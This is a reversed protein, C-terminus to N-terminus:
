QGAPLSSLEVAKEALLRLEVAASPNDQVYSVRIVQDKQFDKLEVKKKSRALDTKKDAKLKTKKDLDFRLLMKEKGTEIILFNKELDIEHVVGKMHKTVAFAPSGSPGSGQALAASVSVFLVVVALFAVRKM